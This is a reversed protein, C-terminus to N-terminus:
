DNMMHVTLVHPQPVAQFMATRAQAYSSRLGVSLENLFTKSFVKYPTREEPSVPLTGTFKLSLYYM